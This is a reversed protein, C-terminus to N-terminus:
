TEYELFKKILYYVVREEGEIKAVLMSGTITKDNYSIIHSSLRAM